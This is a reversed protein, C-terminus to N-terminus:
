AEFNRYDWEALAVRESMGLHEHKRETGIWYGPQPLPWTGHYGPWTRTFDEAFRLELGHRNSRILVADM